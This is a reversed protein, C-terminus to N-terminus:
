PATTGILPKGQAAVLEKDIARMELKRYSSPKVTYGKRDISLYTIRGFRTDAAESEGLMQVLRSKLDKESKNLGKLTERVGTLALLVPGVRDDDSLDVISGPERKIRNLIDMGAVSDPPVVGRKVWLRWFEACQKTVAEVIDEIDPREIVYIKIDLGFRGILVPIRARVSNPVCAFQAAIQVLVKQPISGPDTLDDGWGELGTTKAEIIELGDKSRLCADPTARLIGDGPEVYTKGKTIGIGVPGGVAETYDEVALQILIPELLNGLRIKTNSELNDPALVNTKRVYVDGATAWPDVGCVAPAESAGIYSERNDMGPKPVNTAM